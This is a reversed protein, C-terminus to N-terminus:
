GHRVLLVRRYFSSMLRNFIADPLFRKLLYMYKADRGVRKRLPMTKKQLLAVVVSALQEPSNNKRQRLKERFRLFNIKQIQYTVDDSVVDPLIMNTGFRTSHTGPEILTVQIHQPKLEYYLAESLGELAFKSAVYLSQLPFALYGLVSSINIIRGQSKRLAPLCLKTLTITGFLNVEFQHRIQEESMEELPGSIAYGANNILCDLQGNLDKVIYRQIQEMDDKSTLDLQQVTLLPHQLKTLEICTAINRATAIVRWNNALLAKTLSLGFGSSCGTILVSKQAVSSRM